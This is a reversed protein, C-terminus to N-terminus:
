LLEKRCDQRGAAGSWLKKYFVFGAWDSKWVCDSEFGFVWARAQNQSTQFTLPLDIAELLRQFTARGRREEVVQTAYKELPSDARVSVESQLVWFIWPVAGMARSATKRSGAHPLKPHKLSRPEDGSFQWINESNQDTATSVLHECQKKYM